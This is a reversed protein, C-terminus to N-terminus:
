RPMMVVVRDPKGVSRAVPGPRALWSRAEAALETPRRGFFRLGLLAALPFQPLSGGADAVSTLRPFDHDLRCMASSSVKLRSMDTLAHPIM